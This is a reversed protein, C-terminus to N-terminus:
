KLDEITKKLATQSNQTLASEDKVTLNIQEVLGNYNKLLDDNNFVLMGDKFNIFQQNGEVLQLIREYLGLLRQQNEGFALQRSYGNGLGTEWGQLVEKKFPYSDPLDRGDQVSKEILAAMDAQRRELAAKVTVLGRLSSQIHTLSVLKEAALINSLGSDAISQQYQKNIKLSERTMREVIQGFPDTPKVPNARPASGAAEDVLSGLASALQSRADRFLDIKEDALFSRFMAKFETQSFFSKMQTIGASLEKDQFTALLIRQESVSYQNADFVLTPDLEKRFQFDALKHGTGTDLFAALRAAQPKPLIYAVFPILREELRGVIELGDTRKLLEDLLAPNDKVNERLGQRTGRLLLDATGFSHLIRIIDARHAADDPQATQAFAPTSLFLSLCLLPCAILRFLATM